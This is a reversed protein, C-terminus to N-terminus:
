AIGALYSDVSSCVESKYYALEDLSEDFDDQDIEGIMWDLLLNSVAESLKYQKAM